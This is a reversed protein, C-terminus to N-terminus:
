NMVQLLKAPSSNYFFTHRLLHLDFGIYQYKGVGLEIIRTM